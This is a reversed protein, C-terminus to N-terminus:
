EEEFFEDFLDDEEQTTPPDGDHVQFRRNQLYSERLTLYPDQSDELLAEATLLRARVDIVRLVNIKDRVSTNDYHILPDSLWDVPTAVADLLTNPGLIPIFVFPGEPVGWVALTQSFNEDQAPMEQLSAVDILGGIGVTSNFLFRGFESIGRGPKGQLFNNVVSSPALLNRSFNTVGRRAFNPIVAKYGRAVLRLTYRDLTDNVAYMVRNLPEWPDEPSRVAEGDAAEHQLSNGACGAVLTLLPVILQVGSFIRGGKM